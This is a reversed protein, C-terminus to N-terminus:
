IMQGLAGSSAPIMFCACCSSNSHSLSAFYISNYTITITILTRIAVLQGKSLFYTNSLSTNQVGELTQLAKLLVQSQIM